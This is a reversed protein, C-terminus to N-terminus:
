NFSQFVILRKLATETLASYSFRYVLFFVLSGAWGAINFIAPPSEISWLFLASLTHSSSKFSCPSTSIGCLLHFSLFFSLSDRINRITIYFYLYCNKPLYIAYYYKGVCSSLSSHGLVFLVAHSLHVFFISSILVCPFSLFTPLPRLSPSLSYFHM